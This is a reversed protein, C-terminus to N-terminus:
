NSAAKSTLKLIRYINCLVHLIIDKNKIVTDKIAKQLDKKLMVSRCPVNLLLWRLQETLCPTRLFKAFNVHFCRHLLRMKLLTSHRLGAVKNFFLSQYLHKGTFKALNRLIGKKVSCRRAVAESCEKAQALM